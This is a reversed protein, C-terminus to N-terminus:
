TDVNHVDYLKCLPSQALNKKGPKPGGLWALAKGNHFFSTSVGCGHWVWAVGTHNLMGKFTLITNINPHYSVLLM